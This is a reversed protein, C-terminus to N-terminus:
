FGQKKNIPIPSVVIGGCYEPKENGFLEAMKISDDVSPLPVGKIRMQKRLLAELHM